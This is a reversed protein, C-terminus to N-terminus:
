TIVQRSFSQKQVKRYGLSSHLEMQLLVPMEALTQGGKQFGSQCARYRPSPVLLLNSM